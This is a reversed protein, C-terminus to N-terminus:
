CHRKSLDPERASFAPACSSHSKEVNGEILAFLLAVTVWLTYFGEHKYFYAILGHLFLGGISCLIGFIIIAKEDNRPLSLYHKLGHYFVSGFLWLFAALGLLGLEVAIQLYVNHAHDYPINLDNFKKVTKGFNSKGVGLGLVPNEKIIRVAGKWTDIRYNFVGDSKLYDGFKFMERARTVMNTPMVIAVLFPIILMFVFLRKRYVFTIALLSLFITLYSARMQMFFVTTISLLLTLGFLINKIKDKTIFILALNIPIVIDYFVSFRGLNKDLYRFSLRSGFSPEFLYYDILALFSFVGTSIILAFLLIKVDKLDRVNNVIVFFLFVSIFTYKKINKLSYEVNISGIVSILTILTLIIFPWWLRTRVFTFRRELILRAIWLVAVVALSLSKVSANDKPFPIQSIYIALSFLIGMKCWLQISARDASFLHKILTMKETITGVFKVERARSAKFKM